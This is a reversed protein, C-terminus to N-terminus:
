CIYTLSESTDPYFLYKSRIIQRNESDMNRCLYLLLSLVTVSGLRLFSFLATVPSTM